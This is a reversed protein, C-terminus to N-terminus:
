TVVDRSALLYRRSFIPMVPYRYTHAPERLVVDNLLCKQIMSIGNGKSVLITM